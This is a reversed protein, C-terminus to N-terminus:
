NRNKKRVYERRLSKQVNRDIENLRTKILLRVTTKGLPKDHPFHLASKTQEYKSLQTKLSGLTFGSFPYYSCHKKAVAFGGVVANGCKFAPIGYSICESSEPLIESIWKRIRELTSKQPEPLKRLYRDVPSSQKRKM